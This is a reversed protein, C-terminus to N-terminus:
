VPRLRPSRPPRPPVRGRRRLTPVEPGAALERSEDKSLVSRRRVSPTLPRLDPGGGGSHDRSDGMFRAGGRARRRTGARAPVRRLGLHYRGLHGRGGPRWTGPRRFPVPVVASLALGVVLFGAVVLLPRLTALSLAMGVAALLGAGLLDPPQRVRRRDMRSGLTRHGDRRPLRRGGLRRPARPAGPDAAPLHRVLAGDGGGLPARPHRHSRRTHPVPEPLPRLARLLASRLPHVTKRSAGCLALEM